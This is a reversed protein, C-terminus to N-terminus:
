EKERFRVGAGGGNEEIFEVGETELVKVIAAIADDSAGLVGGGEARKVTPVSMNAQRAVQAQTM